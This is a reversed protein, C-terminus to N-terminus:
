SPQKRLAAQVEPPLENDDMLSGYLRLIDTNLKFMTFRSYTTIISLNRPSIPDGTLGAIYKYVPDVDGDAQVTSSGIQYNLVAGHTKPGYIGDIKLPAVPPYEPGLPGRTPKSKFDLIKDKAMVKNLAYQLLLVDDRYQFWKWSVPHSVDHIWMPLVGRPMNTIRAM